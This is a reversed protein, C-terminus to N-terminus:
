KKVRQQKLEALELAQRELTHNVQEYKVKLESIQVNQNILLLTLEEIKLQQLRQLQPVDQGQSLVDERSPMGPLHHYRNIFRSVSDLSLITYGKEFVFDPWWQPECTFGNCRLEGQLELQGKILVNGTADMRLGGGSGNMPVIALGASANTGNYAPGAGPGSSVTTQGQGDTYSIVLDGQQTLSSVTGATVGSYLAIHRSYFHDMPITNPATGVTLSVYRSKQGFIATPKNTSGGMVDLIARPNASNVGTSGDPLVIFRANDMAPTPNPMINGPATLDRILFLPEGKNVTGYGMGAPLIVPLSPLSASIPIYPADGGSGPGGIDGGLTGGGPPGGSGCHDTATVVLGKVPVLANCFRIEQWGAPIGIGIGLASNTATTVDTGSLSWNGVVQAKLGGGRM